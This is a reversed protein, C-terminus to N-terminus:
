VLNQRLCLGHPLLRSPLSWSKLPFGEARANRKRVKAGSKLFVTVIKPVCIFPIFYHKLKGLVSTIRWTNWSKKPKGVSQYKKFSKSNVFSSRGFTNHSNKIIWTLCSKFYLPQLTSLLNRKNCRSREHSKGIRDKPKPKNQKLNFLFLM